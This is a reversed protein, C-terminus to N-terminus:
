QLISENGAKIGAEDFEGVIIFEPITEEIIEISKVNVDKQFSCASVVLALLVASTIKVYNIVFKGKKM